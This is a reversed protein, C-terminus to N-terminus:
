DSSRFTTCAVPHALLFQAGNLAQYMFWAGTSYESDTPVERPVVAKATLLALHPQQNHEKAIRHMAKLLAGMVSQMCDPSAQMAAAM